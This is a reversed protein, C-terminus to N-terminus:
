RPWAALVIHMCVMTSTYPLSTQGDDMLTSMRAFGVTMSRAPDPDPRPGRRGEM